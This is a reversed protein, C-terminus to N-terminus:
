ARSLETFFEGPKSNQLRRRDEEAARYEADSNFQPGVPILRHGGGGGDGELAEGRVGTEQVGAAIPGYTGVIHNQSNQVADAAGATIDGVETAKVVLDGAQEELSGTEYASAAEECGEVAGGDMRAEIMMDLLHNAAAVLAAQGADMGDAAAAAAQAHGKVAVAQDLRNRLADLAGDHAQVIADYNFDLAV